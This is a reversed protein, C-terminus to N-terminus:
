PQIMEKPQMQQFELCTNYCKIHKDIDTNIDVWYISKHMLLKTKEIGMHNTYLQDLVQKQVAPIIIHRGMM